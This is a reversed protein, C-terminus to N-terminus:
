GKFLSVIFTGLDTANSGSALGLVGVGILAGASITISKAIQGGRAAWLVIVGLVLVVLTVVNDEIWGKLGTTGWESGKAALVVM